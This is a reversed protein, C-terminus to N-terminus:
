ELRYVLGGHQGATWIHWAVGDCLYTYLDGSFIPPTADVYASVHTPGAIRACKDQKPLGGMLAAVPESREIASFLPDTTHAKMEALNGNKFGLMFAAAHDSPSFVTVAIYAGLAVAAAAVVFALVKALAKRHNHFLLRSLVKQLM